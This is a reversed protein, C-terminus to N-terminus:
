KKSPAYRSTLDGIDAEKSHNAPKSKMLKKAREAMKSRRAESSDSDSSDSDSSYYRRRRSRKKPKHRDRHDRHDYRDRRNRHDYEEDDDSSGRRPLRVTQVARQNPQNPQNPQNSSADGNNAVNADNAVKAVKAVKAVQADPKASQDSEDSRDSQDLMDQVAQRAVSNGDDQYGTLADQLMQGTNNNLVNAADRMCHRVTDRHDTSFQDTKVHQHNLLYHLFNRLFDEISAPVLKLKEFYRKADQGPPLIDMAYLHRGYAIQAAIEARTNVTESKRCGHALRVIKDVEEAIRQDSWKLVEALKAARAKRQESMQYSAKAANLEDDVENFCDNLLECSYEGFLRM